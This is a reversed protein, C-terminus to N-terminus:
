LHMGGDAFINEGTVYSSSDSALFVALGTYDTPQAFRGAPIRAAVASRFEPDSLVDRNRDTETAGPSLTNLTVGRGAYTRALTRILTHQANKLGAYNLLDPNARAQLSSGLNIVRGWGRDAMGPVLLQLLRLTSWYNIRFERASQDYDIEGWDQRKETAANIVLIDPEGLEYKVNAVLKDAADINDFDAQFTTAKAGKSVIEGALQEAADNQRAYHLAITTGQDALASAIARGIGRSAGTVLALRKAM